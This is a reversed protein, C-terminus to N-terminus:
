HRALLRLVAEDMDRKCAESAMAVSSWTVREKVGQRDVLERTPALISDGYDFRLAVAHEAQQAISMIADISFAEPRSVSCIKITRPPGELLADVHETSIIPEASTAACVAVHTAGRLAAALSPSQPSRNVVTPELGARRMAAIVFGGVSGSGIVVAKAAAQESGIRDSGVQDSGIRDSGIETQEALPVDLGLTEIAFQAVHPSNVGPTNAVAIGLDAAAGVDISGLSTGRRVLTLKPELACRERWAEM